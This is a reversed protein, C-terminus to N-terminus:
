SAGGSTDPQSDIQVRQGDQLLHHGRIVISDGKLLGSRIEVMDGTTYGLEVVRRVAHGDVNIFVFYVREFDTSFDEEAIRSEQLVADSAIMVADTRRGVEVDVNAFMGPKLKLDSNRVLIEVEAMRTAPDIIPSVTRVHGTFAVHPYAAVRLLVPQSEHILALDREPIRVTGVLPDPDVLVGFPVMPSVTTGVELEIQGILGTFPARIDAERRQIHTREVATEAQKVSERAALSRTRIMDLQQQSAGGVAHIQEMRKLESDLNESQETASALASISQDVALDMQAHDVVAIMQGKEVADGMRVPLSVIRGPVQSNLVVSRDAKIDGNVTLVRVADGIHPVDVDVIATPLMNVSDPDATTKADNSDGCGTVIWLLGTAVIIASLVTGRLKWEV